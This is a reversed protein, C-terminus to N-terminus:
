KGKELHTCNKKTKNELKIECFHHNNTPFYFMKCWFHVAMKGLKKGKLFDFGGGLL